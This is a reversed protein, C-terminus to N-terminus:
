NAEIRLSQISTPPFILTAFVPLAELFVRFEMPTGSTFFLILIILPIIAAARLFQHKKKWQRLTLYTFGAFYLMTFLFAYPYEVYKEYQAPITLLIPSGTNNRFGYLTIFRIVGYTALQLSLLKAFEARALRPWYYIIFAVILFASTEKNLGALALFLLYMTWKARHMFILSLTILLLQPLDYYYGVFMNVPLIFLQIVLPLVFQEKTAFGLDALFSKEAFVFGLLSLFMVTIVFASERPYTGNSLREFIKKLPPPANTFWDIFVSPIIPSIIKATFPLLIRYAYPQEATGELVRSLSAPQFQGISTISLYVYFIWISNVLALVAFVYKSTNETLRNKM